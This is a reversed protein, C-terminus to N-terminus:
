RGKRPALAGPTPEGGISATSLDPLPPLHYNSPTPSLSTLFLLFRALEERNKRKEGDENGGNDDRVWKRNEGEVKEKIEKEEMEKGEAM